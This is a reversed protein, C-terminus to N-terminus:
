IGAKVRRAKAETRLKLVEKAHDEPSLELREHRCVLEPGDKEEKHTHIPLIGIRRIRRALTTTSLHTDKELTRTSTATLRETICSLLM